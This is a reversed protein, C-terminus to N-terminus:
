PPCCVDEAAVDDDDEGVLVVASDEFAEEDAAADLGAAELPAAFLPRLSAEFFPGFDRGDAEAVDRAPRRRGFFRFSVKAVYM